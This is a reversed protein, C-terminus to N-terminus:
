VLVTSVVVRGFRHPDGHMLGHVYAEGILRHKTEVVSEGDAKKKVPRLVYPVKGGGLIWVEDGARLSRAGTGLLMMRKTRFVRRM